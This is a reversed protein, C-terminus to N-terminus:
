RINFITPVKNNALFISKPIKPPIPFHPPLSILLSHLTPFKSPKWHIFLHFIKKDYLSDSGVADATGVMRMRELGEM